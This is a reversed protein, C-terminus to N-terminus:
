EDSDFREKWSNRSDEIKEIDYELNEQEDEDLTKAHEEILKKYDDAARHESSMYSYLFFLIFLFMFVPFAILSQYTKLTDRIVVFFASYLVGLIYSSIIFFLISWIIDGVSGTDIIAFGKLGRITYLLIAGSILISLNGLWKKEFLEESTKSDV